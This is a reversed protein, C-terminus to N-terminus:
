LWRSNYLQVISYMSFGSLIMKAQFPVSIMPELFGYKTMPSDYKVCLEIPIQVTNRTMMTNFNMTYHIKWKFFEVPHRLLLILSVFADDFGVEQNPDRRYGM